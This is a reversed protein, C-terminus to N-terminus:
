LLGPPLNGKGGTPIPYQDKWNQAGTLWGIMSAPTYDWSNNLETTMYEMGAPAVRSSDVIVKKGGIEATSGPMMKEMEQAMPGVRKPPMPAKDEKAKKVDAKYDYAYIPLGTVGDVGLPEINTKEREDSLGLLPLLTAIGTAATGAAGIGQLWPNGTTPQTTSSSTPVQTGGLAALLINLQELPYNRQANYRDERQDLRAQDQAQQMQGAALSSQLSQLYANQRDATLQGLSQAGELNLQAGQLGAQQNALGAQLRNEINQLGINAGFQANNLGAQQNALDAQMQRDFDQMALGSATNFGQNRLNASLEGMSRSTEADTLAERIGQRSGGFAGSAAAQDANASQSLLRQDELRSMAQKEVSQIYPNMYQDINANLFSGANVNIPNYTYDQQGARVMRPDYNMVGRAGAQAQNYAQNTSGVNNYTRNMAQRQEPTLGAVTNGMYPQALTDAAQSATNIADRAAKTYWDPLKTQQTVTQNGQSKGM